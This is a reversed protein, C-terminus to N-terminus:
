AFRRTRLHPHQMEDGAKFRLVGSGVAEVVGCFDFGPVFPFKLGCILRLPAHRLKWDLPYVGAAHVQVLVQGGRRDQPGHRRGRRPSVPATEGRRWSDAEARL